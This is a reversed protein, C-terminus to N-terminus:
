SGQERLFRELEAALEDGSRLDGATFPPPGGSSGPVTGVGGEAEDDYAQELQRLVALHETNASVLEDLRARHHEAEQRLATAEVSVGSVEALGTLLAV